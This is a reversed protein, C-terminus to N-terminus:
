GLSRFKALPKGVAVFLFLVSTSTNLCSSFVDIGIDLVDMKDFSDM